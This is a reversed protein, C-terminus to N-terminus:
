NVNILLWVKAGRIIGENNISNNDGDGGHVSGVARLVM